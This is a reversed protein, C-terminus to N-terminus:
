RYELLMVSLSVFFVHTSLVLFSTYRNERRLLGAVVDINDGEALRTYDTGVIFVDDINGTSPFGSSTSEQFDDSLPRVFVNYGMPYTTTLQKAFRECSSQNGVIVAKRWNYGFRRLRRLFIM